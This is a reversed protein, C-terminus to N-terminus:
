PTPEEPRALRRALHYELRSVPSDSALVDSRWPGLQLHSESPSGPRARGRIVRAFRADHAELRDTAVPEGTGDRRSRARVYLHEETALGVEGSLRETADPAATADAKRGNRADTARDGSGESTAAPEPPRGAGRPGPSPRHGTPGATSPEAALRTTLLVYREPTGGEPRRGARALQSLDSAGFPAVRRMRSSPPLGAAHALTPALDALSALRTTVNVPAVDADEGLRPPRWILPIRHTSWEIRAGGDRGRLDSPEGRLAAFLLGTGGGEDGLIPGLRSVLRDLETPGERAGVHIWVFRPPATAQWWRQFRTALGIAGREAEREPAALLDDFHSFGQDLRRSQNVRPSDVFAATAYGAALLREAISEHDSALFSVGDDRIGHDGVALGTLASAAGSAEGLGATAAWAFRTGGDALACISRGADSSGGFCALRDAALADSTILVLDPRLGAEESCGAALLPIVLM